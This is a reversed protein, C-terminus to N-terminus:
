CTILVAARKCQGSAFQVNGFLATGVALETPFRVRFKVCRLRLAKFWKAVGGAIREYCISAAKEGSLYMWFKFSLKYLTFKLLIGQSAGGYTLVSVCEHTPLLRTIYLDRM